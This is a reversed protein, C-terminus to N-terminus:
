FSLRARAPAREGVRPEVLDVGVFAPETLAPPSRSATRRTTGGGGRRRALAGGAAADLASGTGVALDARPGLEVLHDAAEELEM